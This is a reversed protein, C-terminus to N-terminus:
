RFPSLKSSVFARRVQEPTKGTWLHFARYFSNPDDFGLLFSIEASCIDPNQLYHRALQERTEKLIENFTFGDKKLRRQLTRASMHLKESVFEVTVSGSSLHELIVTRVSDVTSSKKKLAALRKQLIPEFHRWMNEDATLFPLNADSSKFVITPRKAQGVEVGFHKRYAAAPEFARLACVEIPIVRTRTAMRALKLFYVLETAILTSPPDSQTGFWELELRTAEDGIEVHMNIPCIIRKYQALRSLASNLNPSCMVAFVAPDFAEVTLVEGLRLPLTQDMAEEELSRWLRFYEETTLRARGHKFVDKPLGARELIKLHNFGLDKILLIWGRNVYVFHDESKPM